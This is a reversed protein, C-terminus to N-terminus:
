YFASSRIDFDVTGRWPVTLPKSDDRLFTMCTFNVDPTGVSIAGYWVVASYQRRDVPKQWQCTRFTPYEWFPHPVDTNREYTLDVKFNGTLSLYTM